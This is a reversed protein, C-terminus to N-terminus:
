PLRRISFVCDIQLLPNYPYPSLDDPRYPKFLQGNPLFVSFRLADNPKFKITQTMAGSDIKLFTSSVPQAIDTITCIFIANASNPNNSYLVNSSMMSPSSINTLQVYVYPYFTIRSGTSLVVNPLSLNVISIEYCVNENQSAISGTYILPCCNDGAFPVININDNVSPFPAYVPPPKLTLTQTAGVYGAIYFAKNTAATAPTVITNAAGNKVTSDYVFKGVYYNDVASAGAITLTNGSAATVQWKELPLSRRITYVDTVAWGVPFASELTALQTTYDYSIIKRAVINGGLSLTEDVIYWDNYAQSYNLATLGTGDIVPIHIISSTSTDTITFNNGVASGNLALNLGVSAQTPDYNLIVRTQALTTNTFTYGLYYNSIASLAAANLLPLADVSGTKLTGAVGGGLGGQWTFYIPAKTVPDLAATPVDVNKSPGFLVDFQAVETFQTRDRFGSYIELFRRSSM